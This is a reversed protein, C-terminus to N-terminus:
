CLPWCGAEFAAFKTRGTLFLLATLIVFSLPSVRVKGFGACLETCCDVCGAAELGTIAEVGDLM